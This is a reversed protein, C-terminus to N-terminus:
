GDDHRRWRFTRRCLVLGVLTWAVLVLATPGLQWSHAAEQSAFDAPLFV